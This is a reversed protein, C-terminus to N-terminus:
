ATVEAAAVAESADLLTLAQETSFPRRRGAQTPLDPHTWRGTRLSVWGAATLRTTADASM